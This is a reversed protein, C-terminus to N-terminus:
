RANSLLLSSPALELGAALLLPTHGAARTAHLGIAISVILSLAMVAGQFSIRRRAVARHRVHQAIGAWIDSELADLSHDSAQSNLRQLDEDIM